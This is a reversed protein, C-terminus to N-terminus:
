RSSLLKGLYKSKIQNLALIQKAVPLKMIVGLIAAMARHSFLAHNDFILNQLKGREIAMMVAKHASNVPTITRTKGPVLKISGAPCNRECLGCGLCLREDIVATKGQKGGTEEASVLEIADVPCISVCKGCGTCSSEIRATLGTTHVPNLFAFKRAAIMAECCCKCCNCIFNVENQVNEGFQVLNYDYAKYLLEMCEDASVQKAYGARILSAATTNFTMCIELPSDCARGMHSMKHRCYCIGIGIHSATKIVHSARGYDLVYLANESSLAKENVFMRGLKTDGRAMLDTIFDEEVNIYKYLLESLLKQDIDGRLRMLSFEIFGAMPPPLIYYKENNHLSDLLIARSALEDLVKEAEHIAMGWNKSAKEATFPKIPLLSVLRAEKETFLISLIQYLTDSPPAGQPFRNLRKVLDQYGKKVTHHAM